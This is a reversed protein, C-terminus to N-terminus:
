DRTLTTSPTRTYSGLSDRHGAVVQAHPRSIPFESLVTGKQRQEGGLEELRQKIVLCVDM